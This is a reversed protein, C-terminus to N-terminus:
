EAPGDGDLETGSVSRILDNKGLQPCYVMEETHSLNLPSLSQPIPERELDRTAGDFFGHRLPSQYFLTKESYHPHIRM